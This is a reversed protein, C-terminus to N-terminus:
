LINGIDLRGSFKVEYDGPSIINSFYTQLYYCLGDLLQLTSPRMSVLLPEFSWFMKQLIQLNFKKFLNEVTYSPAFM